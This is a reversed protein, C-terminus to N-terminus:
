ASPLEEIDVGVSTMLKLVTQDNQYAHRLYHNSGFDVCRLDPRILKGTILATCCMGTLTGVDLDPLMVELSRSDEIVEHPPLMNEIIGASVFPHRKAFIKDFKQSELWLVFGASLKEFEVQPMWHALGSHLVLASRSESNKCNNLMPFQIIEVKSKPAELGESSFSVVSDTTQEFAGSLHTTPETYKLGLIAAFFPKVMWRWRPRNQVGIKQYNMIGEAVVVIRAKGNNEVSRFIHNTLVNDNNPLLITEIRCKSMAAKIAKAASFYFHLLRAKRLISNQSTDPYQFFAACKQAWDADVPRLSIALVSSLQVNNQKLWGEAMSSSIANNLFVIIKVQSIILGM